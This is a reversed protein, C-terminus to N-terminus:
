NHSDNTVLYTVTREPDKNRKVSSEYAQAAKILTRFNLNKIKEKNVDIIDMAGQKVAPEYEPMFDPNELIARMRTVIQQKTMHVDVTMCRSRVASDWTDMRMNSIFVIRGTFEFSSPIGEEEIGKAHWSIVRKKYSDLAAKLVNLANQDKQISDADDFVLISGNREWLLQYLMRATLYGKIFTYTGDYPITAGVESNAILEDRDTVNNDRFAKIVSHTKGLGGQGVVICSNSEGNAVMGVLDELIEFRENIDFDDVIEIAQGASNVHVGDKVVEIDAHISRQKQVTIEAAAMTGATHIKKGNMYVVFKGNEPIIEIRQSM